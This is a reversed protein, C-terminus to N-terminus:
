ERWAEAVWPAPRVFARLHRAVSGRRRETFTAALHARAGVPAAGWGKGAIAEPPNMGGAFIVIRAGAPPRPALAYNLPFTRRCHHRYHVVWGRPWFSVGGPAERTVFRQEFRYRAQVELPAALFMDRLPSLAGVPARYVSTQGLREFPTNPNRALIVDGSAGHEFFPALDGLIVVDLDLFLFPGELDALREAWLRSKGWQGPRAPVEAEMPPLPLAEVGDAMGDARDTFCVFRFPGALNRRVMAFLRNVYPAGYKTGWSICVVQRM